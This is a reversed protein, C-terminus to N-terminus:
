VAGAAGLGAGLLAGIGTGIGPVISGMLAGSAAGGAIGVGAKVYPNTKQFAAQQSQGVFALALQAYPNNAPQQRLFENYSNQAATNQQDQFPALIQQQLLASTLPQQTYTNALGIGQLQRNAADNALSASLSQDQYALTARQGALNAQLDSLGQQVAQGRRSSFLAGSGAYSEAIQPAIRQQFNRMMPNAVADTFYQDTVQPNLTYAPKGSLVSKIANPVSSGLGGTPDFNTVADYTQQYAPLLSPTM